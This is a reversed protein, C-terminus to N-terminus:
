QNPVWFGLLSSPNNRKKSNAKVTSRLDEFTLVKPQAEPVKFRCRLCIGGAVILHQCERPKNDLGKTLQGNLYPLQRNAYIGLIMCTVEDDHYREGTIPDTGAMAEPLMRSSKKVFVELERLTNANKIVCLNKKFYATAASVAESKSRGTM